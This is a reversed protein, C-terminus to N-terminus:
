WKKNNCYYFDYNVDLLNFLINLIIIISKEKHTMRMIIRTMELVKMDKKDCEVSRSEIVHEPTKDDSGSSCDGGLKLAM